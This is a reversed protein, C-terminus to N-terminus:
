NGNEDELELGYNESLINISKKLLKNMSNESICKKFQSFDEVNFHFNFRIHLTDNDPDIEIDINTHIDDLNFTFIYRESAFPKQFQKRSTIQNLGILNVIDDINSDQTFVFNVGYGTIITNIVGKFIQLASSELISFDKCENPYFSIKGDNFVVLLSREEFTVRIPSHRVSQTNSMEVYIHVNEPEEDPLKTPAIFNDELWKPTFINENWGGLIILSSSNYDLKM